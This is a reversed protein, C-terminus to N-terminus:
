TTMSWLIQYSLVAGFLYLFEPKCLSLCALFRFFWLVLFVSAMLRRCNRLLVAAAALVAKNAGVITGDEIKPALAGLLRM